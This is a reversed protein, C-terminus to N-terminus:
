RHLSSASPRRERRQRRGVEVVDEDRVTAHDALGVVVLGRRELDTAPVAGAEVIQADMGDLGLQEREV